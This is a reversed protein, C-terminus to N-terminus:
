FSNGGSRRSAHSNISHMNLFYLTKRDLHHVTTFHFCERAISGSSGAERPAVSVWQVFSNKTWRGYRLRKSLSTWTIHVAQIAQM